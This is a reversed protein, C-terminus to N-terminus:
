VRVRGRGRGHPLAAAPGRPRRRLIFHNPIPPRTPSPRGTAPPLAGPGRRPVRCFRALCQRSRIPGGGAGADGGLPHPHWGKGEWPAEPLGGAAPGPAPRARRPASVPPPSPSPPPPASSCTAARARARRPAASRVAPWKEATATSHLGAPIQNNSRSSTLSILVFQPLQPHLRVFSGTAVIRGSPFQDAVNVDHWPLVHAVSFQPSRMTRYTWAIVVHDRSSLILHHPTMTLKAPCTSQLSVFCIAPRPRSGTLRPPQKEAM